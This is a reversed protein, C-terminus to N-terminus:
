MLCKGNVIKSSSDLHYSGLHRDNDHHGRAHISTQGTELKGNISM